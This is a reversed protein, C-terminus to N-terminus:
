SSKGVDPGCEIQWGSPLADQSADDDLETDTDQEAQDDAYWRGLQERRDVLAEDRDIGERWTYGSLRVRLDDLRQELEDPDDRPGAELAKEPAETEVAWDRVRAQGEPSNWYAAHDPQGEPSRTPEAAATLENREDATLPRFGGPATPDFVVYGDRDAIEFAEEWRQDDDDEDLPLGGPLAIEGVVPGDDLQDPGSIHEVRLDDPYTM